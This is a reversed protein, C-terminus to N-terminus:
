FGLDEVALRSNLYKMFSTDDEEKLGCKRRASIYREMYEEAYVDSEEDMVGVEVRAKLISEKMQDMKKQSEMYTYSLHAIKLRLETYREKPDTDDEVDQKLEEERDELEKIIRKDDARQKKMDAKMTFDMKQRIDVKNVETV